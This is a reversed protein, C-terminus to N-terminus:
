VIFFLYLHKMTPLTFIQERTEPITGVPQIAVGRGTKVNCCAHSPAQFTQHAIHSGADTVLVVTRLVM